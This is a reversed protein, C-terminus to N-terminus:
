GGTVSTIIRETQSAGLPAGMHLSLYHFVAPPVLVLGDFRDLVGGHGPLVAGTDKIGVDRKISSLMLDGLQGLGAIIFGLTLLRDVREMPTGEFVYHGIAACLLTTLILAGIAGSLTKNPSTAPLLKPGGVFRGVLFAFVENMEVGVLILLLIPRYNPDNAILSMYGLSFGFLLFGLVGLAVRQIFGAPRDFSITVTAIVAVALPAGAFFLRDYHDVAAFTMFAIGVMVCASVVLERFLGTTREYERFCLISLIAVGVMTWAAGLLIPILIGAILWCWSRWRRFADQFEDADLKGLKRFIWIVLGTLALGVLVAVTIGVTVPHDFALWFGFLRDRTSVDMQLCNWPVPADWIRM